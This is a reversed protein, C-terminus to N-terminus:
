LENMNYKKVIKLIEKKNKNSMRDILKIVVEIMKNEYAYYLATERNNIVKNNKRDILINTVSMNKKCVMHLITRGDKNYNNIDEDSMRDILKIAVERMENECAWYLATKGDYNWKNISENSMRDILKIAVSPMNKYCARYLATEGENNWKNISENNMRDILKLAVNTMRFYCANHLATKGNNCWKNISENIMKDILKIAEDSMIFRCALYLVTEGNINWENIREEQILEKIIEKKRQTTEFDIFDFKDKNNKYIKRYVIIYEIFNPIERWLGDFLGWYYTILIKVTGFINNYNPKKEDDDCEEVVEYILVNPMIDKIEIDEILKHNENYKVKIKAIEEIPLDINVYQYNLFRM